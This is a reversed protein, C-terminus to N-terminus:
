RFTTASPPSRVPFKNVFLLWVNQLGVLHKVLGGQSMHQLRCCKKLLSTFYESGTLYAHNKKHSSKEQPCAISLKLLPVSKRSSFSIAIIQNKNLTVRTTAGLLIQSTNSGRYIFSRLLSIESCCYCKQSCLIALSM